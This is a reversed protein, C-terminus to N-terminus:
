CRLQLSIAAAHSNHTIRLLPLCIRLGQLLSLSLSITVCAGRCSSGGALPSPVSSVLACGPGFGLRVWAGRLRPCAGAFGPWCSCAWSPGSPVLGSPAPPTWFCFCGVLPLGCPAAWLPCGVLPRRCCGVLPRSSPRVGLLTWCLACAPAVLGRVVAASCVLVLVAVCCCWCM